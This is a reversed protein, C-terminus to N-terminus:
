NNVLKAILIATSSKFSELSSLDGAAIATTVKLSLASVIVEVIAEFQGDGLDSLEAQWGANAVLNIFAEMQELRHAVADPGASFVEVLFVKAFDAFTTISELYREVLLNMRQETTIGEIESIAGIASELTGLMMRSAIRNAEVFCALKDDFLQYFTARSVGASAVVDAITTANYGKEAVAEVMAFM